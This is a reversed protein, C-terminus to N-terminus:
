PSATGKMIYYPRIGFSQNAAAAYITRFGAWMSFNGAGSGTLSTRLYITNGNQFNPYYMFIKFPVSDECATGGAINTKYGYYPVCIQSQAMPILYTNLTRTKITTVDTYAITFDLNLPTGLGATLTSKQAELWTYILTNYYTSQYQGPSSSSSAQMTTLKTDPILILHHEQTKGSVGYYYDIDAVRWNVSNVTWYDGVYIDDFTGTYIANLQEATISTGLFKGRFCGNHITDIDSGGGGGGQIAAYIGDSTVPNNSGQTPTTDFTLTDQKGSLATYVGGSTVPNTSSATPITDFTLTNEKGTLATYIGDSTVPNTSSQTPTNDFTLTDQKGSLDTNLEDIADQVNTATMGSTTNDYVIDDADYTSPISPIDSVIEDLADQVNTANLGSTTNDYNIDDADYTSPVVPLESVIEDLAEQVNDATLGSTTNDYDINDATLYVTAGGGGGGSSTTIDSWTGDSQMEFKKNNEIVHATSTMAIKVGDSSFQNQAPLDSETDVEFDYKVILITNGSDEYKGQLNESAIFYAM